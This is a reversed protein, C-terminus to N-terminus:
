PFAYYDNDGDDHDGSSMPGSDQGPVGYVDEGNTHGNKDAMRRKIADGQKQCFAEVRLSDKDMGVIIADGMGVIDIDNVSDAFPHLLKMSVFELGVFGYTLFFVFVLVSVIEDVIGVLAFPMSFTWLFLFTRGMQIMTFPLPTSALRLIERYANLFVNLQDLLKCRELIHLDVPLVYCGHYLHSRLSQAYLFPDDDTEPPVNRALNAAKEEDKVVRITSHLIEVMKERAERRWLRAEVASQEESFTLVLQNLERLSTLCHGAWARSLMYRELSLYVKSVVLYSVILSMLAHAQGSFTVRIGLSSELFYILYTLCCNFICYPLVSSWISGKIQLMIAWPRQFSTPSLSYTLLTLTQHRPNMVVLLYGADALDSVKTDYHVPM